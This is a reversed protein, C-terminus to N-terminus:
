IEIEEKDSEVDEEDDEEEDEEVEEDTDENESLSEKMKDILRQVLEDKTGDVRLGDVRLQAKLEEENMKEIGCLCDDPCDEVLNNKFQYSLRNKRENASQEKLRELLDAKFGKTSLGKIELQIRLENVKMNDFLSEEM